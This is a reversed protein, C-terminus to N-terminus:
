SYPRSNAKHPTSWSLSLPPEQSHPSKNLLHRFMERRGSVAPLRLLSYMFAQGIGFDGETNDLQGIFEFLAALALLVIMVLVTGTLITRMLYGTLVKM